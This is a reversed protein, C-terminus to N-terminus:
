KGEENEMDVRKLTDIFGPAVEGAVTDTIGKMLSITRQREKEAEVGAAALEAKKDLLHEPTKYGDLALVQATTLPTTEVAAPLELEGGLLEIAQEITEVQTVEPLHYFINGVRSGVLIVNKGAMLAGGMESAKGESKALNLIILTDCAKVEDWDLQGQRQMEEDNVEQPSDERETWTSVVDIGAELLRAKVDTADAKNVWPAALYVKPVEFSYSYNNSTLVDPTFLGINGMTQHAAEALEELNTASITVHARIDLQETESRHNNTPGYGPREVRIIIGGLETIARAENLFRVDAVVINGAGEVRSKLLNVWVDEGFIDRGGETGVRQLLRRVDANGKAREYGIERLLETYRIATPEATNIRAMVVPDIAKAVDRVGDAFGLKTYGYSSVLLNALSDKGCRAHGTVGIIM